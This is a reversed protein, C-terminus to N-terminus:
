LICAYKPLLILFSSRSTPHLINIINVQSTVAPVDSITNNAPHVFFKITVVNWIAKSQDNRANNIVSVGSNKTASCYQLAWALRYTPRAYKLTENPVLGCNGLPTPLLHYSYGCRLGRHSVLYNPFELAIYNLSLIQLYKLLLKWEIFIHVCTLYV